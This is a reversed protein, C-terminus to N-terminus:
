PKAKQALREQAFAVSDIPFRVRSQQATGLKIPSPLLGQAVWSDVTRESVRFAAALEKKTLM